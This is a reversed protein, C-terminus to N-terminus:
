EQAPAPLPLTRDLRATMIQTQVTSWTGNVAWYFVLALPIPFFLGCVVLGIPALWLMMKSVQQMSAAMPNSDDVPVPAQRRQTRWMNVFTAVAAIILLPLVVLVVHPTTLGPALATLAEASTRIAASLPVGLVTSHAFSAVEAANFVGNSGGGATVTFDALLHYLGVFVPMQILLPLCGSALSIGEGRQLQQAAQLYAQQDSGHKRKLEAMQPQIQATRRASWMQKWAPRLLILRVTVVLLVISGLWLLGSDPSAALGLLDHWVKMVLSVPYSLADFM